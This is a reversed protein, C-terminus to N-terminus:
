IYLCNLRFILIVGYISFVLSRCLAYIVCVRFLFFFFKECFRVDQKFEFEAIDPLQVLSSLSRM